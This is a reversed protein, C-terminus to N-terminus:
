GADLVLFLEGVVCSHSSEEEDRDNSRKTQKSISRGSELFPATIVVITQYPCGWVKWSVDPGGSVVIWLATMPADATDNQVVYRWAVVVIAGGSHFVCHGEADCIDLAQEQRTVRDGVM